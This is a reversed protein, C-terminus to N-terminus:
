ESRDVPVLDFHRFGVPLPNEGDVPRIRYSYRDLTRGTEENLDDEFCDVVVCKSGHFRSDADDEGM